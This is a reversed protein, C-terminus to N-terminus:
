NNMTSPLAQLCSNSWNNGRFRSSPITRSSFVHYFTALYLHTQKSRRVEATTDHHSESQSVACKLFTACQAFSFAFNKSIYLVM